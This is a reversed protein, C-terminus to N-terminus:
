LYNFLEDTEKAKEKLIEERKEIEKKDEETMILKIEKKIIEYEKPYKKRLINFWYGAAFQTPPRLLFNQLQILEEIYKEDKMKENKGREILKKIFPVVREM